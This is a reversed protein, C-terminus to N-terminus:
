RNLHLYFKLYLVICSNTSLRGSSVLILQNLRFSLYTSTETDPFIDILYYLSFWQYYYDHIIIMIITIIIMFDLFSSFLVLCQHKQVYIHKFNCCCHLWTQKPPKRAWLIESTTKNTVELTTASMSITDRIGCVKLCMKAMRLPAVARM